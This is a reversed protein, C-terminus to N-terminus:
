VIKKWYFYSVYTNVIYGLILMGQPSLPDAFSNLFNKRINRYLKPIYYKNEHLIYIKLILNQEDKPINSPMSSYADKCIMLEERSVNNIREMGFLEIQSDLDDYIQKFKKKLFIHFSLIHVLYIIPILLLMIFKNCKFSIFGGFITFLWVFIHLVCLIEFSGSLM